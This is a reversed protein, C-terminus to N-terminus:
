ASTVDGREKEGRPPVNRRGVRPSSIALPRRITHAFLLASSWTKRRGRKREGQSRFPLPHVRKGGGGPSMMHDPSTMPLEGSLEADRPRASPVLSTGMRGGTSMARGASPFGVFTVPSLYIVTWQRASVM